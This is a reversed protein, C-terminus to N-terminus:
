KLVSLERRQEETLEAARDSLRKLLHQLHPGYEQERWGAAPIGALSRAQHLAQATLLALPLSDPDDLQASRLMRVARYVARAAKDRDEIRCAFQSELLFLRARLVM